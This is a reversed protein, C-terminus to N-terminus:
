KRLERRAWVWIKRQSNDERAKMARVHWECGAQEKEKERRMGNFQALGDLTMVENEDDCEEIIKEQARLTRFLWKPEAWAEYEKKDNAWEAFEACSDFIFLTGESTFAITNDTVVLM